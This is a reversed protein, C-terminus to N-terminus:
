TQLKSENKSGYQYKGYIIQKQKKSTCSRNIYSYHSFAM